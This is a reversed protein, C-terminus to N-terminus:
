TYYPGVVISLVHITFSFHSFVWLHQWFPFYFMMMPISVTDIGGPGLFLGLALSSGLSQTGWDSTDMWPPSLGLCELICPTVYTRLEFLYHALTWLLISLIFLARHMIWPSLSYYYFHKDNMYCIWSCQYMSKPACFSIFGEDWTILSVFVLWFVIRHKLKRIKQYSIRSLILLQCLFNFAPM